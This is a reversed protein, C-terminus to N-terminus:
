KNIELVISVSSVNKVLGTRTHSRKLPADHDFYVHGLHTDFLARIASTSNVREELRDYEQISYGLVAVSDDKKLDTYEVGIAVIGGPKVVRIVESIANQPTASYSLTWGFIVADFHNEDFPMHHMDGLVIKPSYSILDLGTMGKWDIGHGHLLLLDHENRPGIILIKWDKRVKEISVFPLILTKIRDDCLYLGKM